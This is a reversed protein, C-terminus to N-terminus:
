AAPGDGLQALINATVVDPSDTGEVERLLGRSRYLEKLPSTQQRFAALRDRVTFETDDARQVLAAGDQDCIGSVRSPMTVQHYVAGCVPCSWRGVIRQVIEDDTVEISVVRDIERRCVALMRDLEEAQAVTRPFGDLLFGTACDPLALRERILDIVLSDPVLQGADMYSAAKAGLETGARRASRLMDGTSLHPVNLSQELRKAQTGKGAGPPGFLILHM